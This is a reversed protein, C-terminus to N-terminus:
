QATVPIHYFVGKQYTVISDGAVANGLKKAKFKFQGTFTGSAADYDAITIQGTANVGTSYNVEGGGTTFSYTASNASGAGLTYTGPTINSTKLTLTEFNTYGTVVLGGNAQLTAKYDVARWMENDKIGQVSPNNFKVDEECSSFALVLVLLSLLRKM